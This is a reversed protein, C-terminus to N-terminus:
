EIIPSRNAGIRPAKNVASNSGAPPEPFIPLEAEARQQSAARDLSVPVNRRREHSLSLAAPPPNSSAPRAAVTAGTASHSQSPEEGSPRGERSMTARPAHTVEVGPPLAPRREVFSPTADGGRWGAYSALAAAAMAMLMFAPRLARVRAGGARRTFLTRTPEQRVLVRGKAVAPDLADGEQARVRSHRALAAGLASEHPAYSVSMEDPWPQKPDVERLAGLLANRFALMSAPRERPELQLAQVLVRALPEPVGQLDSSRLGSRLRGFGHTVVGEFPLHGTLCRVFVVGMSWIDMAPGLANCGLAQEPAMYAPTGFAAGPLTAGASELAKAIGFDLLKPTIRGSGDDSLFINSPKLDRHVIGLRHLVALANLMPVLAQAATLVPLPEDLLAELPQGYLRELVLYPLDLADTGVDLVEVVNPHSAEVALRAEAAVRRVWDPRGALEPRLLKIALSRGTAEHRAGYVLGMGGLALLEQLRYKGGLLQGIRQEPPGMGQVTIRRGYGTM